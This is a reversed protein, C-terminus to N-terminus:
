PLVNELCTVLLPCSDHPPAIVYTLYFSGQRKKQRESANPLVEVRITKPLVFSVEQGPQGHTHSQGNSQTMEHFM